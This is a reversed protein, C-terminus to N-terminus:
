KVAMININQASINSQATVVQSIKATDQATLEESKVVVSCNEGEIYVVCDAFGKARILEEIKTEQEIAKAMQAVQVAVAAKQEDTTKVDNLIEKVLEAAEERAEARNQRAQEFYSKVSANVNLADGLTGDAATQHTVPDKVTPTKTAGDAFYYNLYVAVGLAVVLTGLIAQKKGFFKAM